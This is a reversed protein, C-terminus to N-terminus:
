SPGQLKSFDLIRITTKTKTKTKSKSKSKPNGQEKTSIRPTWSTDMPTWSTDMFSKPNPLLIAGELLDAELEETLKTPKRRKGLKRGPVELREEAIDSLQNDYASGLRARAVAEDYESGFM